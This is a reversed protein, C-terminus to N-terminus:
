VSAVVSHLYPSRIAGAMNQPSPMAVYFNQFTKLLAKKKNKLAKKSLPQITQVNKQVGRPQSTSRSKSKSRSRARRRARKQSASTSHSGRGTAAPASSGRSSHSASPSLRRAAASSAAGAAPPPFVGGDRDADEEEDMDEDEADDDDDDKEEEEEATETTDAVHGDEPSDHLDEDRLDTNDEDGPQLRTLAPIPVDSGPIPHRHMEGLAPLTIPGPGIPTLATWHEAHTYNAIHIQRASDNQPQGRVTREWTIGDSSHLPAYMFIEIDLADAIVQAMDSDGMRRNIIRHELRTDDPDLSGAQLLTYLRLRSQRAPNTTGESPHMVANWLDRVRDNVPYQDAVRRGPARERGIWNLQVANWMCRDATGSVNVQTFRQAQGGDTITIEKQVKLRNDEAFLDITKNSRTKKKRLEKDDKKGDQKGDKKGDKKGAKKDDKKGDKSGDKTPSTGAEKGSKKGDKPSATADKSGSKGDNSKDKGKGDAKLDDFPGTADDSDDGGDDDNDAETDVPAEIDGLASIIDKIAEQPLGYMRQKGSLEYMLIARELNWLDGSSSLGYQQCKKVVDDRAPAPALSGHHNYLDILERLNLGHNTWQKELSRTLKPSEGRVEAAAKAKRVRKSPHKALSVDHPHQVRRRALEEGFERELIKVIDGLLKASAYKIGVPFKKSKKVHNKEAIPDIEENDKIEKNKQRKEHRTAESKHEPIDLLPIPPKCKTYKILKENGLTRIAEEIEDLRDDCRQRLRAMSAWDEDPEDEDEDDPEHGEVPEVNFRLDKIRDRLYAEMKVKRGTKPSLKPKKPRRSRPPSRSDEEEDDDDEGDGRKRKDGTPSTAPKAPSPSKAPETATKKSGDKAPSAPKPPAKGDKDVKKVQKPPM